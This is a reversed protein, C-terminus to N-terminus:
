GRNGSVQMFHEGRSTRIIDQHSAWCLLLEEAFINEHLETASLTLETFRPNNPTKAHVLKMVACLWPGGLWRPKFALVLIM